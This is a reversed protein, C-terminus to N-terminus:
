EAEKKRRKIFFSFSKPRSILRHWVFKMWAIFGYVTVIMVTVSTLIWVMSNLNNLSKDAPVGIYGALFLFVFPVLQVFLSVSIGLTFVGVARSVFVSAKSMSPEGLNMSEEQLATQSSVVNFKRETQSQAKNNKM